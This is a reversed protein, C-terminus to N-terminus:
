WGSARTENSPHVVCQTARTCVLTVIRAEHMASRFQIIIAGQFRGKNRPCTSGQFAMRVIQNQFEIQSYVQSQDCSLVGTRHPNVPRGRSRPFYLSTPISVGSGRDIQLPIGYNGQMRTLRRPSYIYDFSDFGNFSKL